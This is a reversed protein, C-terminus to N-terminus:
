SEILSEEYAKLLRHLNNWDIYRSERVIEKGKSFVLITPVTFVVHQGRFEDMEEMDLEVLKVLPFDKMFLELQTAIPKCANCTKTKAILVVLDLNMLTKFENYNIIKEM